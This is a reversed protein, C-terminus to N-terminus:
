KPAMAARLELRPPVCRRTGARLERIDAL